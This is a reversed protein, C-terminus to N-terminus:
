MVCHMYTSIKNGHMCTHIHACCVCVRVCACMRVCARVCVCVRVCVCEVSGVYVSWLEQWSEIHEQCTGTRIWKGLMESPKKKLRVTSIDFCRKIVLGTSYFLQSLRKYSWHQDPMSRAHIQCPNGYEGNDIMGNLVSCIGTYIFLETSLLCLISEIM